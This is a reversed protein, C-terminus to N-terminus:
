VNVNADVLNEIWSCLREIEDRDLSSIAIEDLLEFLIRRGEEESKALKLRKITEPFQSEIADVMKWTQADTDEYGGLQEFFEGYINNM